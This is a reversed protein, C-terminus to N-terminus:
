ANKIPVWIEIVDPVKEHSTVNCYKEFDVPMAVQLGNNPIYDQYLNLIADDIGSAGGVVRRVVYKSEPLSKSVMRIPTDMDTEKPICAMYSWELKGPFKPPYIRLGYVDKGIRSISAEDAVEGFLSWARDSPDSEPDGYLIVGVFEIPGLTEIRVEESM